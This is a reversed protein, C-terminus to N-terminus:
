FEMGRTENMTATLESYIMSKNFNILSLTERAYKEAIAIPRVQLNHPDGQVIVLYYILDMISRIADRNKDYIRAPFEIRIPSAHKKVKVYCFLKANDIPNRDDTYRYFRSRCGEKLLDNALHLDSNYEDKFEAITNVLLSSNSNKVVFVPVINRKIFTEGVIRNFTAMGDGALFPGDILLISNEISHNELFEKKQKAIEVNATADIGWEKPAIAGPIKDRLKKSATLFMMRLENITHYNDGHMSVLSHSVLVAKGELASYKAISEDYASILTKQSAYVEYGHKIDLPYSFKSREEDDPVVKAGDTWDEFVFVGSRVEPYVPLEIKTSRIKDMFEFFGKQLVVKGFKEPNLIAM